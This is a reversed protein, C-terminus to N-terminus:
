LRINILPSQIKSMLTHSTQIYLNTTKVSQHGALRQVLNIDTGAEVLHTFSCHLENRFENIHKTINM